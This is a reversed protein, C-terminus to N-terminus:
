EPEERSARPAAAKRYPAYEALCDLEEANQAREQELYTEIAARFGRDAIWHRSRTKVPEYGRAIKHEGQAGAEVRAFGHNIAYEIAQYYCLEFHLFPAYETCGWYRGYLCDGGVVNLAGAVPLGDREAVFMLLDEGMTQAAIAFFERTLYPMGWKRAGTDQYFRWFAAWHAPTIDAGRLVRIALGSDLTQRRERRVAKRKRSSLAALFDDFTRYDRNFWHYQSTERLLFGADALAADDTADIFNVHLSSVRFQLAAEILGAALGARAADDLALLRPGTAPTFPAAVLLKPYYRGGAREYADAWHHDFIYEGRSHLKFYAPACAVLTDGRHVLAHRPIWGATEGVSSSAELANLFAHGVFPNRPRDGALADWNAAEIKAISSATTLKMQANDRENGAGDAM